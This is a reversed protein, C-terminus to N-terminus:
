CIIIESLMWISVVISIKNEKKKVLSTAHTHQKKQLWRENIEKRCVLCFLRSIVFKCKNLLLNNKSKTNKTKTKSTKNCYINRKSSFFLPSSALCCFIPVLIKSIDAFEKMQTRWHQKGRTRTENGMKKGGLVLIKIKNFTNCLFYFYIRKSFFVCFYLELRCSLPTSASFSM